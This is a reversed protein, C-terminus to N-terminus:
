AVRYFDLFLSFLTAVAAAGTRADVFRFVRARLAVEVTEVDVPGHGHQSIGGSGSARDTKPDWLKGSARVSAAASSSSSSSSSARQSQHFDALATASSKAAVRHFFLILHSLILSSFTAVLFTHFGYEPNVLVYVANENQLEFSLFVSAITLAHRLSYFVLCGRWCPPIAFM